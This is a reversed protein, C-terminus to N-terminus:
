AGLKSLSSCPVLVTVKEKDDNYSYQIRRASEATTQNVSTANQGKQSRQGSRCKECALRCVRLRGNWELPRCPRFRTSVGGGFLYLTAAVQAGALFVAISSSIRYYIKIM